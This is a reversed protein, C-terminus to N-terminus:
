PQLSGTVLCLIQVNYLARPAELASGGARNTGEFKGWMPLFGKEAIDRATHVSLGQDSGRERVSEVPIGSSSKVIVDVAGKTSARPIVKFMSKRTNPATYVECINM